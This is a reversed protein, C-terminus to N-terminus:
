CLSAPFLGLLGVCTAGLLITVVCDLTNSNLNTIIATIIINM